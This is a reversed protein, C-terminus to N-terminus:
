DGGDPEFDEPRFDVEAWASVSRGAADTGVAKFVIPGDGARVGELPITRWDLRSGSALATAGFRAQIESSGFAGRRFGTARCDAAPVLPEWAIADIRVSRGRTPGVRAQVSPVGGFGTRFPRVDLDLGGLDDPLTVVTVQLDARAPGIVEIHAAGPDLTEVVAFHTSTGSASWIDAPGGVQVRSAHPGALVWDAFTGRPNLSRYLSADTRNQQPELGSLYLATTWERYLAAFSRGTAAELNAIGRLNSRILRDLLDYGQRDVCWRLFLYAGGRNGHSRFLDAAYYDEVVLRYREPRSLFASVRYDLNSRSFGHLDEVLHALGEDLWGEEEPKLHGDRDAPFAKRCFTVAHTYEHALVTRLHPGPTLSTSLYMMDCRNSFPRALGLDFDAGRVFGDVKLRGGALRTLWSSVLITFRGDGDVDEAAGFRREALPFVSTDFTAVVEAVMEPALADTDREDVYVQVHRGVGALRGQVPLYNSASAADGDRVLLFFKRTPQPVGPKAPTRDVLLPPQSAILPGPPDVAIPFPRIDGVARSSATLRVAFPGAERTLASVIVLTKANQRGAPLDFSARGEIVEIPTVSRVGATSADATRFLILLSLASWLPRLRGSQHRAPDLM